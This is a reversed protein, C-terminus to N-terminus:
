CRKLQLYFIMGSTLDASDISALTEEQDHNTKVLLESDIELLPNEGCASWVIARAELNNSFIFDEQEGGKYVKTYILGRRKSWQYSIQVKGNGGKPLGVFGRYDIKHITARYGVPVLVPIKLVCTKNDELKGTNGGANAQFQDFLLSIYHGDPSLTISTSQSPCGSGGYQVNGLSLSQAQALSSSFVTILILTFLISFKM